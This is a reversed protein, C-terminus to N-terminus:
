RRERDCVMELHPATFSTTMVAQIIPVMFLPIVEDQIYVDVGSLKLVYEDEDKLQVGRTYV